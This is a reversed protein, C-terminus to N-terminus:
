TLRDRVADPIDDLASFEVRVILDERFTFRHVATVGSGLPVGARDYIQHMAAAVVADGVEIIESAFMSHHVVEFQDQFFQRLEERGRLVSEHLIDPLEVDPDLLELLGSIDEDNFCGYASRVVTV